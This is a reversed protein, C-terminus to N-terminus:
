CQDISATTLRPVESPTLRVWMRCNAKGFVGSRFVECYHNFYFRDIASLIHETLQYRKKADQDAMHVWDQLEPERIVGDCYLQDGGGMLMHFPEESHKQMLDTWVPDYGSQFGNGRFDDPNVGASFGNCQAGRPLPHVSVRSVSLNGLCFLSSTAPSVSYAAWRMNQNMAPVWFETQPGNNVNYMIKMEYPGLPIQIM